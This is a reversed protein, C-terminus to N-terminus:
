AESWQINLHKLGLAKVHRDIHKPDALKMRSDWPDILTLDQNSDIERLCDPIDFHKLIGFVMASQPWQYRPDQTLEHFSLLANHLTIRKITPHLTSAFLATIAGMGRGVLHIDEYGHSQFLDLVRLLDHARRGAYPENLLLGQNSYLYDTRYYNFFNHGSDKHTRGTMQGIGRVDVAFRIPESEIEKAQGLILEKLASRHPVYITAQKGEPFFYQPGNQPIAHLMM